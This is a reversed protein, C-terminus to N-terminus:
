HVFWETNPPFDLSACGDTCTPPPNTGPDACPPPPGALDDVCVRIPPSVGVNGINDAVRAALCAWGEGVSPLLEWSDGACVADSSAIPAFAYLAPPAGELTQPLFRTMTTGPCVPNPPNVATGAHCGESAMHLPSDFDPAAAFWSSGKKAVASLTLEVPRDPDPLAEFNITDCAGDTDSDILLPIADDGQAYLRMTAPDVGAHWSTVAGPSTNTRENVLVRYLSSAYVVDLDSAADEGVPDFHMSCQTTSSVTKWERFRPPDLSLIPPVNDLRLVHSVTKENGVGDNAWINITLQVLNSFMAIRTDFEHRYVTGAANVEWDDLVYQDQNITGIV